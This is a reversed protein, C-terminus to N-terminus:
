SHDHESHDHDHGMNAMHGEPKYEPDLYKEPEKEFSRMCGPACFHYLEGNFEFNWQSGETEVVMHCVPDKAKM